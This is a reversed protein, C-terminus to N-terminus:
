LQKARLRSCTGWNLDWAVRLSIFACRQSPKVRNTFSCAIRSSNYTCCDIAHICAESHSLVEIKVVTVKLRNQTFSLTRPGYHVLALWTRMGTISSSGTVWTQLIFWGLEVKLKIIFTRLHLLYNRSEQCLLTLSM